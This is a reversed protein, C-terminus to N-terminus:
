IAPISHVKADVHSCCHHSHCVQQSPNCSLGVLQCDYLNELLVVLCVIIAVTLCVFATPCLFLLPVSVNPVRTQLVCDSCCRRSGCCRGISFCHLSLMLPPIPLLKRFPYCPLPLPPLPAVEEVQKLQGRLCASAVHALAASPPAGVDPAAPPPIQRDHFWPIKHMCASSLWALRM